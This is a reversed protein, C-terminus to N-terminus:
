MHINFLSDKRCWTNQAGKDFILQCLHMPKHRLRRNQDMPRATQKQALVM